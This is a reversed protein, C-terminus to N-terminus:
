RFTNFEGGAGFIVGGSEAKLIFGSQHQIKLGGKDQEGVLGIPLSTVNPQDFAPRRDVALQEPILALFFRAKPTLM